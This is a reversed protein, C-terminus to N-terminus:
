YIAKRQEYLTNLERFHTNVTERSRSNTSLYVLDDSIQDIMVAIRGELEIARQNSSPSLYRMDEAFKEASAIVEQDEAGLRHARIRLDEAKGRLDSVSWLKNQEAEEVERIHESTFCAIFFYLLFALVAACELIIHLAVSRPHLFAFVLIVASIIAFVVVGRYYIVGGVFVRATSNLNRTHAVMPLFVACYLLAIVVWLMCHQWFLFHQLPYVVFAVAAIILFGVIFLIIKLLTYDKKM